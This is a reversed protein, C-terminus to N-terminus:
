PRRGRRWSPLCRKWVAHEVQQVVAQGLRPVLIMILASPAVAKKDARLSRVLEGADIGELWRALDQRRVAATSDLVEEIEEAVRPPTVGLQRGVDLACLMGLGVAAGHALRWRSQAELAHGWTHGFNLVRRAGSQEYPDRRCVAGKVERADRILDAIPQRPDSHKRWLGADLCAFMKLAEVRGETWRRRALTALVDPCLWTESAYHYVGAANRVPVGDCRVNLAGKGGVSSDVMSLLTTPVHVLRLGRRLLHAAVTGLDGITGGGVAVLTARTPLGAGAALVRSLARMSKASEGGPLEVTRTKRPVLLPHLRAVRADILVLAGAPIAASVEGAGLWRDRRPRHSGPADSM